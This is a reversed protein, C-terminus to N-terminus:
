LLSEGGVEATVRCSVNDYLVEVATCMVGAASCSHMRVLRVRRM